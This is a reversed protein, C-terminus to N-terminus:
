SEHVTKFHRELNEKDATGSSQLDFMCAKFLFFLRGRM